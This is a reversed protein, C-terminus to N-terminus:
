GGSRPGWSAVQVHGTLRIPYQLGPHWVYLYSAGSTTPIGDQYPIAGAVLVSSSAPDGNLPNSFLSSCGGAQAPGVQACVAAPMTFLRRTTRGTKADITVVTQRNGSGSALVGIGQPQGRPGAGFYGNWTLGSQHLLIQVADSLSTALPNIAVTWASTAATQPDYLDFSLSDSDPSWSLDSAGRNIQTPGPELTRVATVAGSASLSAIDIGVPPVLYPAEGSSGPPDPAIYALYRGNASVEPDSGPGVERVPGGGIPVSLIQDGSNTGVPVSAAAASEFFVTGDPAVSVSPLGPAFVSVGTALTREITGTRTSIVGITDNATWGVITSPM